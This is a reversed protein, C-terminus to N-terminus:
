SVRTSREGELFPKVAEALDDREWGWSPGKDKPVHATTGWLDDLKGKGPSLPIGHRFCGTTARDTTRPTCKGGGWAHSPM